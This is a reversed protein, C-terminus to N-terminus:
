RVGSSCTRPSRALPARASRSSTTGTASVVVAEVDPAVHGPSVAFLAPDSRLEQYASYAIALEETCNESGCECVITLGEDGDQSDDTLQRVRENVERFLAENLGIRTERETMAELRLRSRM